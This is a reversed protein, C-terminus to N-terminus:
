GRRGQSTLCLAAAEGAELTLEDDDGYLASYGNLVHELHNLAEEGKGTRGLAQALEFEAELTEPHESGQEALLRAYQIKLQPLRQQPPEEGRFNERIDDFNMMTM